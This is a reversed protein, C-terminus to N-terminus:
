RDLRRNREDADVIDGSPVMRFIGDGIPDCGYDDAHPYNIFTRKPTLTERDLEYGLVRPTEQDRLYDSM